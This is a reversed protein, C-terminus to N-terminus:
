GGLEKKLKEFEEDANESTIEARAKENAEEATPLDKPLFEAMAPAKDGSGGGSGGPGTKGAPMADGAASSEGGGCAALLGFTLAPVLLVLKAGIV